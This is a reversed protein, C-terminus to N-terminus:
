ALISNERRPQSINLANYTIYATLVVQVTRSCSGYWPSPYWKQTKGDRNRIVLYTGILFNSNLQIDAISAYWLMKPTSLLNNSIDSFQLCGEPLLVMISRRVASAAVFSFVTGMLLLMSIYIFAFLLSFGESPLFYRIWVSVTEGLLFGIFPPLICRVWANRIALSVSGRLIQWHSPIQGCLISRRVEEPDPM